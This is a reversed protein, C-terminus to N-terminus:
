MSVTTAPLSQDIQNLMPNRNDDKAIQANM